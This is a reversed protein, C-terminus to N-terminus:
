DVLILGVWRRAKDQNFNVQLGARKATAVVDIGMAEMSPRAKFPHRCPLGSKIGVCEDCLFCGGASLGAAFCYGEKLCMSEIQSIVEYLREMNDRLTCAYEIASIALQEEKRGHRSVIEWVKSLDNLGTLEEPPRSSSSGMKILIAGHYSKLIKKFESVPMMNPPCMLRGYFFCVPMLCKLRTREDVVVDTVPIAIAESAGLEKAKQCLVELYSWFKKGIKSSEAEDHM